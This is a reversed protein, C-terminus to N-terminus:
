CWSCNFNSSFNVEFHDRHDLDYDKLIVFDQMIGEEDFISSPQSYNLGIDDDSFYARSPIPSGPQNYIPTDRNHQPRRRAALSDRARDGIDSSQEFDDSGTRTGFTSRKRPESAPWTDLEPLTPSLLRLPLLTKMGPVSRQVTGVSSRSRPSTSPGMM